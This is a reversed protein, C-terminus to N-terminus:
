KSEAELTNYLFGGVKEIFKVVPKEKLLFVPKRQFLAYQVDRDDPVYGCYILNNNFTKSAVNKINEFTAKAEIEDFARNIVVYVTPCGMKFLTKIMGYGDVISTPEPTIVILRIDAELMFFTTNESIGAGTDIIMYETHIKKLIDSYIYNREMRGLNALEAVGSGGSILDMGLVKHIIEDFDIKGNLYDMLTTNITAGLLIDSDAMGMDADFLTLKLGKEILSLALNVSLTTKGVGGKGSAVSIIKPRSKILEEKESSNKSQNDEILKKTEALFEDIYNM